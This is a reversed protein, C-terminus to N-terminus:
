KVIIKKIFRKRGAGVQIIYIGAKWRETQIMLPNESIEGRYFTRQGKADSIEVTRPFPLGSLDLTLLGSNLPNPFIRLENKNEKKKLGTVVDIVEVSFSVQTSNFGFAGENEINENTLKVTIISKGPASAPPSLILSATTAPYTFNLTPSPVVSEDSSTVEINTKGGNGDTIGTLPIELVDDDGVHITYNPIDDISPGSPGYGVLTTISQAPLSVTNTITGAEVSNESASTRYATFGDPRVPIDLSVEKTVDGSNIMVLTLAGNTPNKFALPLVGSDDSEADVRIAGPRIYKYFQKSVYYLITPEGDAMISFSSGSEGSIGWYVWASIEGFRLALYMSRALNMAGEQTQPYGSTETMWLPKHHAKSINNKLATWGDASGFDPAVGDVYGHVAYVDLYSNDEGNKFINNVYNQQVGWSWEAMHEPGFIKTTIGEKRFKEGVVHLIDAFEEPKVVNSEFPNAFFPENQISLAYLDINAEQKLIKIYALLYEAYEEYYKPDLRGGCVRRNPDGVPCGNCNYCEAPTREPDDHLKMWVPPTWSTAILKKLGAAKLAKYYPLQKALDSGAQYNFKSLDLNNPSDNDNVPELDWFINTRVITSGMDDLFRTLFDATYFPPTEWYAKIGGFAGFGQITQHEKSVDVTVKSQGWVKWSIAVCIFIFVKKV